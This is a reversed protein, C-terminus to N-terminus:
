TASRGQALVHRAEDADPLPAGGALAKRLLVSARSADGQAHLALGLHLQILAVDPALRAARELLATAASAQGLRLQIWGLTDLCRPDSSASFPQAIALARQLDARDRHRQVLQWALNNAVARDEPARAHLQEYEAIAEDIRGQRALWEARAQAVALRGPSTKEGDDFLAMAGKTGHRLQRMAAVDLWADVDDPTAALRARWVREATDLDHQAMALRAKAAYARVDGPAQAIAADLERAAATREGAEAMDAALLLRLAPDDPKFRVADALVDRALQPEGKAHHAQALLGVLEPSGPADHVASRLDSLAASADGRALSIRGRLRLAPADRPQVALTKALWALAEDARGDAFAREALGDQAALAAPSMPARETLERLVRQAQDRQGGDDYLKALRMRYSPTDPRAAIADRAATEAAEGGRQQELFDILALMAAEADLGPVAVAARLVAEAQAVERRRVHFAAWARWLSLDQPAAQAARRHFALARAALPGQDPAAECLQAAATLLAIDDPTAALAADLVGLAGARDGRQSLLSALLLSAVIRPPQGPRVLDRLDRIASDIDGRRATVAAQLTRAGPHDARLSLIKTLGRQAGDTDGSLLRLKAIALQTDLDGPALEASQQWALWARPYDGIGESVQAVLAYAPANKPDIQLVNRAELRAKDWQGQHVYDSAKRLGAQVRETKGTCGALTSAAALLGACARVARLGRHM